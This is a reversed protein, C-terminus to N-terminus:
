HECVGCIVGATECDKDICVLNVVENHLRCVLKGLEAIKGHFTM